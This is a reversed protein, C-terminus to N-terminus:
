ERHFRTLNGIMLSRTLSHSHQRWLYLKKKCIGINTAVNLVRAIFVADERYSYDPFKINNEVLLQRKILYTWPFGPLSRYGFMKIIENQPIISTSSESKEAISRKKEITENTVQLYGCKAVDIEPHNVFLQHLKELYDPLMEDDGDVFIIYEGKALKLGRNRATGSSTDKGIDIILPHMESIRQLVELTNDTSKEDYAIIIEFNQYTQVFLTKLTTEIYQGVNYAPIIISIEPITDTM